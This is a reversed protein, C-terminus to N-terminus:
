RHDFSNQRSPPTTSPQNGFQISRTQRPHPYFPCQKMWLRLAQFYIAGSVHAAAVPRRLLTRLLQGDTLERRQLKLSAQFVHQGAKRSCLSLHLHESPPQIRWDYHADMDMFPSVHFEKRHSYRTSSGSTRNGDWLVYCHRQNWPTNSVEAVLAALQEHQDFCYYMNIPSFYVGFHRLQTLLRVPGSLQVGTKSAVMRYVSEKLSLQPDGLHDSRRFSMPSFRRRGLCWRSDVLEEVEDLDLYLSATSYQFVHAPALRRHKVAGRYICSKM